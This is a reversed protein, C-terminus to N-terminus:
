GADSIGLLAEAAWYVAAGIVLTCVVNLLLGAKAMQPITIRGSAYVIANPPTAVPMMFACSAAIAVPVAYLAPDGITSAGLTAAIPIFVSATATNSTVETLFVVLGTVLLILAFIPWGAFGALLDGIWAALGSAQIASALSLGGGFLILVGWPLTKAAEWDLLFRHQKLDAPIAFLALGGLLAIGPDSLGTGPLLDELLPRLVWLAAVTAFVAAVMREERGIPGLGRLEGAIVEEAGAVAHHGVSVFIRTLLLWALVLLLAALPVGFLMWRGFGIAIGYRESLFAALLANPPTGILTGLGGISAAYAIGLLLALAFRDSTRADGRDLLAVVALAIPVMMITTATNSLWMSLVATAIMFGGILMDPTSGVAKLITLAIRRHLNWREVAKAILFGGLFLFILPNAYPATADAIGAVGLPPFIVIPVLATAAVPLAETIWWIVMLTVTAAVAWAAPTLGAPAPLVLLLLFALPGAPLGILPVIRKTEDDAANM